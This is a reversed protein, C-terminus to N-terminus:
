RGPSMSDIMKRLASTLDKPGSITFEQAHFAKAADALSGSWPYKAPNPNYSLYFVPCTVHLQASSIRKRIRKDDLMTPSVIVIADPPPDHSGLEEQLIRAVFNDTSDPNSLQQLPVTGFRLSRVSAGLSAFDIRSELLQRYVVRQQDVSFAVLSFRGFRPERAVGQLIATIGRLDDSTMSGTDLGPASFNVLLKVNFGHAATRPKDSGDDFPDAPVADATNAPMGLPVGRLSADAKTEIQWHASCSLGGAATLWDVRYQGPGVVYEGKLDAEGNSAPGQPPVPISAALFVPRDPRAVSTVRVVTRLEGGRGAINQLQLTVEYGSHFRLDLGIAPKVPAPRCALDNVTRSNSLLKSDAPAISAPDVRELRVQTSALVPIILLLSFRV